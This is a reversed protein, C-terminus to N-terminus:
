AETESSKQGFATAQKATAAQTGLAVIVATIHIHIYSFMYKFQPYFILNAPFRKLQMFLQLSREEIKDKVRLQIYTKM